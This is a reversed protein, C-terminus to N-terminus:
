GVAYDGAPLPFGQAVFVRGNADRFLILLHGQRTRDVGSLDITVESVGPGAEARREEGTGYGILFEVTEAGLRDVYMDATEGWIDVSLPPDVGLDPELV